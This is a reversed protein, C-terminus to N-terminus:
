GNPWLENVKAAVNLGLKRCRDADFGEPAAASVAGFHTPPGGTTVGGTYIMMGRILMGAILTFEAFEYGGGGRWAASAFPAGLKGTLNVPITDMLRKMQWSVTGYYTPSGFLVARAEKVFANDLEDVPITRAECNGNQAGQAILEAMARTNGTESHYIIAIKNM